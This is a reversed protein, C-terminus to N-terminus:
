VDLTTLVAIVQSNLIGFDTSPTIPGLNINALAFNLQTLRQQAMIIEAQCNQVMESLDPM